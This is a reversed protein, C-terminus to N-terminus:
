LQQTNKCNLAEGLKEDKSVDTLGNPRVHDIEINSWNLKPTLQCENWRKYSYIDTGSIDVMSSSKSLGNLAHCSPLKTNNILRFSVDRERM